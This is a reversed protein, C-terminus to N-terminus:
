PAGLLMHGYLVFGWILLLLPAAVLVIAIFRWGRLRELLAFVGVVTAIFLVLAWAKLVLVLLLMGISM